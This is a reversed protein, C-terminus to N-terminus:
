ILIEAAIEEGRIAKELTRPIASIMLAKSATWSGPM